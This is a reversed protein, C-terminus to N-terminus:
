ALLVLLEATRKRNLEPALFFSQRLHAPIQLLGVSCCALFGPFQNRSATQSLLIIELLYKILQDFHALLDGPIGPKLIIAIIGKAFKPPEIIRRLIANPEMLCDIPLNHWHDPLELGFPSLM